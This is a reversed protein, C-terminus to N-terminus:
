SSWEYYFRSKRTQSYYRYSPSKRSYPQHHPCFYILHIVIPPFFNLNLTQIFNSKLVTTQEKNWVEGGQHAVQLVGELLVVDVVVLALHVDRALGSLQFPVLLVSGQGLGNVVNDLLILSKNTLYKQMTKIRWRLM